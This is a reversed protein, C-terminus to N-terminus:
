ALSERSVGMDHVGTLGNSALLALSRELAEDAHEADVAPLVANMPKMAEDVLIGTPKGDVGVIMKGGDVVGGDLMAKGAPSGALARLAASNAWGAHGDVRELWVPRDPFATDLDAVTPFATDPWDNQDWGSGLLWDDADLTKEFARLRTLVDAKSTSDVLNAQMLALGLGMVHGHADILGPIVTADGADIRHADPYRAALDRTEGVALLRGSSDWAMATATPHQPDSTHIRAATLLQVDAAYAPMLMGGACLVASMCCSLLNRSLTM